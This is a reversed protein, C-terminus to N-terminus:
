GSLRLFAAIDDGIGSMMCAVPLLIVGLCNMRRTGFLPPILGIGLGVFMIGIGGTGTVVFVVCVAIILSVASLTRLGVRQLIRLTFLALPAVLLLAAASSIAISGMALYFNEYTHGSSITNIMLAGGGRAMNLGPVFLLLVAGIYYVAKSAGQSILFVRDNRVSVAHGALFGGVGGTIVPFFAAFGGGLAGALSGEAFNRFNIEPLTIWQRPARNGTVLNLLLWPITFLGVFAPMLNQFASDTSVPSSYFLAFGLLGSMAFTALGAFLQQWSKIFRRWGSLGVATDKPWESMLMFCIVCWIIWHTHPAFVQRMVPLVATGFAALGAIVLAVGVASGAATLIVAEYAKGKMLYKQGPLVTFMASEDPAALIVSPITNCVAFGAIMGLSFPVFLAEAGSSGYALILVFGLLNYVHLGPICALASAIIGGSLAAIVNQGLM